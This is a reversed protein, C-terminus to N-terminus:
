QTFQIAPGLRDRHDTARVGPGKGHIAEAEKVEHHPVTVFGEEPIEEMPGEAAAGDDGTPSPELIDGADRFAQRLDACGRERPASGSHETIYRKQAANPTGIVAVETEITVIGIDQQGWLM